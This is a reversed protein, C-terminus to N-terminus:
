KEGAIAASLAACAKRFEEPQYGSVAPLTMSLEVETTDRTEDRITQTAKRGTRLDLVLWGSGGTRNLEKLISQFPDPDPVDALWRDWPRPAPRKPASPDAVAPGAQHSRIDSDVRELAWVLQRASEYDLTHESGYKALNKLVNRAVETTVGKQQVDSALGELWKAAVRSAERLSDPDGFAQQDLAKFVPKLHSNFDEDSAGAVEAAIGAITMPWEHVLPRGPATRLPRLQRWSPTQLEHHCAYCAFGSLEPHQPKQVPSKVGEDILDANLKLSESLSILSGVLVRRTVECQDPDFSTNTDTLFRKLAKDSKEDTYRWHRPMQAIFSSLEFAPLPPHGAAYMEHTVIKGQEVNGIHCSACIKSQTVPNRVDWFGFKEFKVEATEARWLPTRPELAAHELLWGIEMKKTRGAPGHCGECGVGHDVKIREDLILSTAALGQQDANLENVPLASHCALCRVDRDIEAVGMLKGIRQSRENKLVAYAQYHKDHLRWTEYETMLAWGDSEPSPTTHCRKCADAGVFDHPGSAPVGWFDSSPAGTSTSEASRPQAAATSIVVCLAFPAILIARRESM